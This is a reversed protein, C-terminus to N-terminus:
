LQHEAPQLQLPKTQGQPGRPRAGVREAQHPRAVLAEGTAAGGGGGGGGGPYGEGETDQFPSCPPAFDPRVCLASAKQFLM